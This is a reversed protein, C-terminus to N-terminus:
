GKIEEGTLKNYMELYGKSFLDVKGAILEIKTNGNAVSDKMFQKIEPSVIAKVAEEKSLTIRLDENDIEGIKSQPMGGSIESNWVQEGLVLELVPSKGLISKHLYNTGLAALIYNIYDENFEIEGQEIVKKLNVEGAVNTNAIIIAKMPNELIIEVPSKRIMVGAVFAILILLIVSFIILLIKITRHNSKEPNENAM